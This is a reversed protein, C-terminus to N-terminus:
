RYLRSKLAKHLGNTEDTRNYVNKYLNIAQMKQGIIDLYRAYAYMNYIDNRNKGYAMKYFEGAKKGNANQEFYYGALLALHGSRDLMIYDILDTYFTKQSTQVAGNAYAYILGSAYKSKDIIDKAQGWAGNKGYLYCLNNKIKDSKAGASLLMEYYMMAKSENANKYAKNAKAIMKSIVYKSLKPSQHKTKNPMYWRTTTIIYARKYGAKKVKQLKSRIEDYKSAQSYCAVIQNKVRHLHIEDRLNLPTKNIIEEESHTNKTSFLQISYVRKKQGFSIGDSAFAVSVLFVVGLILRIM